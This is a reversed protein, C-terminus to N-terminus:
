DNKIGINSEEVDLLEKKFENIFTRSPEEQLIVRFIEWQIDWEEEVIELINLESDSLEKENETMYLQGVTRLSIESVYLAQQYWEQTLKAHLIETLARCADIAPYVAYLDYDDQKPIIEEIKELQKDFDIQANKVTLSEWLTNLTSRFQQSIEPKQVSNAFFLVNPYMRECLALMFVQLQVPGLKELRLQLPNKLM